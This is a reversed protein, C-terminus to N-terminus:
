ILQFLSTEIIDSSIYAVLVFAYSIGEEPLSKGLSMLTAVAALKGNLAALILPTNGTTCTTNIDAGRAITQQVAWSDRLSIHSVARASGPEDYTFSLPLHNQKMFDCVEILSVHGAKAALLLLSSLTEKEM